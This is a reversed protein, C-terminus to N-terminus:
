VANVPDNWMFLDLIAGEPVREFVECVDNTEM